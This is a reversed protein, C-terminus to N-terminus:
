VPHISLGTISEKGPYKRRRWALEVCVRTFALPAAPSGAGTAPDASCKEDKGRIASYKPLHV